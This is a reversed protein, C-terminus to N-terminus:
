NLILSGEVYGNYKSVDSNESIITMIFVKDLTKHITVLEINATGHKDNYTNEYNWKFILANSEFEKSM